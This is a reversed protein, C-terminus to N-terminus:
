LSSFMLEWGQGSSLLFQSLTWSLVCPWHLLSSIWSPWTSPPILPSKGTPFGCLHTKFHGPLLAQPASPSSSVLIGFLLLLILLPRSPYDGQDIYVVVALRHNDSRLQHPPSHYSIHLELKSFSGPLLNPNQQTPWLADTFLKLLPNGLWIGKFLEVKVPHYFFNLHVFILPLLGHLLSSGYDLCIHYSLCRSLFHFAPFVNSLRRFIM